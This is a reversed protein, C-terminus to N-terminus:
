LRAQTSVIFRGYDVDFTVCNAATIVKSIGIWLVTCHTGSEDVFSFPALVLMDLAEDYRAPKM